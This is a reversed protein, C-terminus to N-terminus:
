KEGWPQEELVSRLTSGPPLPATREVRRLAEEPKINRIRGPKIFILMEVDRDLDSHRVFSRSFTDMPGGRSPEPLVTTAALVIPNMSVVWISRRHAPSEPLYRLPEVLWDWYYTVHRDEVNRYMLLAQLDSTPETKALFKKRPPWLPGELMVDVQHFDALIGADVVAVPEESSYFHHVQNIGCGSCLALLIACLTPVDVRCPRAVANLPVVRTAVPGMM